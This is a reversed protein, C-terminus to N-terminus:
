AAWVFDGVDGNGTREPGQWDLLAPGQWPAEEGVVDMHDLFYRAAVEGSKQDVFNLDVRYGLANAYRAITELSLSLGAAGEIQSLRSRNAYGLRRALEAQSLSRQERLYRLIEGLEEATVEYYAHRQREDAFDGAFFEEISTLKRKM